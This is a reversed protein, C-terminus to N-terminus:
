SASCQVEHTKLWWDWLHSASVDYDRWKRQWGKAIYEASLSAWPEIPLRDLLFLQLSPRIWGRVIQPHKRQWAEFGGYKGEPSLPRGEFARRRFVGIGGITSTPVYRPPAPAMELEATPEPHWPQTFHPCRSHPPEIGLLDLEPHAEFTAACQDLWGTPVIVDNDIKAFFEASPLMRLYDAMVAVPSGYKPEHSWVEARIAGQWDPNRSPLAGLTELKERTGDTSNDDVLVIRRVHNWNTHNVLAQLSARTFELRNHALFLIDIM